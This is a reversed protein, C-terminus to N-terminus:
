NLWLSLSKDASFKDRKSLSMCVEAPHRIMIIYKLNIAFESLVTRWFDILVSVRPDKMGWYLQDSYEKKILSVAERYIEKFPAETWCISPNNHFLPDDWSSSLLDFLRENIGVVASNEFFGKENVGKQAKFLQNGMFFGVRSLMGSMASTGSRHMGLIVVANNKRMSLVNSKAVRM